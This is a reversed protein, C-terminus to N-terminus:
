RTNFDERIQELIEALQGDTFPPEEAWTIEIITEEQNESESTSITFPYEPGNPEQYTGSYYYTTSFPERTIDIAM